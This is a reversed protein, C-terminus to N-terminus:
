LLYPWECVDITFMHPFSRGVKVRKTLELNKAHSIAASLPEGVILFLYPSLPDRQRLGRNLKISGKADGNILVSYSVSSVCTMIWQIFQDCFGLEWEM